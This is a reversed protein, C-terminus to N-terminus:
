ALMGYNVGRKEDGTVSLLGLNKLDDRCRLVGLWNGKKENILFIVSSMNRVNHFAVGFLYPM